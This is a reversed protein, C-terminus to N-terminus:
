IRRLTRGATNAITNILDSVIKLSAVIIYNNYWICMKTAIVENCLSLLSVFKIDLELYSEFIVQVIDGPDNTVYALIFLLLLPIVTRLDPLLM